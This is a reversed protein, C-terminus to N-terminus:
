RQYVAKKIQYEYSGRFSMWFYLKQRDTKEFVSVYESMEVHM